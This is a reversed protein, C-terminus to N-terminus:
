FKEMCCFFELWIDLRAYRVDGPVAKPQILSVNGDADTHTYSNIEDLNQFIGNTKYGYFFPFPQGNEARSVTGVNQYNDYNEFGTENGLKILKNKLYTANGGIRFNFDSVKFRYSTEFEFGSNEMEGVNGWPKSEGVYSPIPMVMLM